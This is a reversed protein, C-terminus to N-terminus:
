DILKNGPFFKKFMFMVRITYGDISMPNM